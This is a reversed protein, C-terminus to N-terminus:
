KQIDNIDPYPRLNNRNNIKEVIESFKNLSIKVNDVSAELKVVEKAKKNEKRTIKKNKKTQMKEEVEIEKALEKEAKLRKKKDIEAQKAMKKENKIRIKEELKAQKLLEKERKKKIKEDLKEQNLLDKEKKIRIKEKKAAQEIIKQNDTKKKFTDKKLERIEVIMTKKFYAEKEKNNICPHDGCWYVNKNTSCSTTIIVFIAAIFYNKM